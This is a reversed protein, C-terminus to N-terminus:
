GGRETQEGVWANPGTLPGALGILIEAHALPALGFAAALAVILPRFVM